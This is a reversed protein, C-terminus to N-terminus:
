EAKKNQSFTEKNSSENTLLTEEADGGKEPAKYFVLILIVGITVAMDAINFVPLHDYYRGFLSVEFIRIQIFDVVNGLFLPAYGYIAGYLVRDILNGMAGGIVFAIGLRYEIRANKLHNLYILLGIVLLVTFITMVAKLEAGFYLGFAIGPNEINTLEIFGKIVNVSGYPLIGNHRSGTFPLTFGKVLCKALQDLVIVIFSIALIRM